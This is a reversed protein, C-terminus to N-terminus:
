LYVDEDPEPASEPGPVEGPPNEGGGIENGTFVKYFFFVIGIGGFILMFPRVKEMIPEIDSLHIEAKPIKHGDWEFPGITWVPAASSASFAELQKKLWCPVGFPFTTCLLVIHPLKIGPETPPGIPPAKGEPPPADAPNVVVTVKTSGETGPAERTGPAPDSRVEDNPGVSTDILSEPLVDLENDTWGQEDLETQYQTGLEGETLPAPVIAPMEAPNAIIKVKEEEEAEEGEKPSTEITADAPLSLDAEEWTKPDIEVTTFGAYLLAVECEQANLGKCSPVDLRLPGYPPEETAEKIKKETAPHVAHPKALKKAQEEPSPENIDTKPKGEPHDIPAHNPIHVYTPQNFRNGHTNFPRQIYVPDSTTYKETAEGKPDKRTPYKCSNGPAEFPYTEWGKGIEAPKSYEVELTGASPFLKPWEEQGDAIRAFCESFHTESVRREIRPIYQEAVAYEEEKSNKKVTIEFQPTWLNATVYWAKGFEAEELEAQEEKFKSGEGSGCGYEAHVGCGEKSDSQFQWPYVYHLCESEGTCLGLEEANEGYLETYEKYYTGVDHVRYAEPYLPTSSYHLEPPEASFTGFLFNDVPNTGTTIDEYTLYGLVAAAGIASVTAGSIIGADGATQMLDDGLTAEEPSDLPIDEINNELAKLYTEFQAHDEVDMSGALTEVEPAAPSKYLNDLWQEDSLGRDVENRVPSSQESLDELKPEKELREVLAKLAREVHTPEASASATFLLSFCFLGLIVVLVIRSKTKMEGRNM